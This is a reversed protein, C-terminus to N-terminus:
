SNAFVKQGPGRVKIKSFFIFEIIEGNRDLLLFWTPQLIGFLSILRDKNDMMSKGIAAGLALIAVLVETVEIYSKSLLSLSMNQISPPDETKPKSDVTIWVM